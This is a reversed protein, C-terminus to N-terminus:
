ANIKQLYASFQAACTDGYTAPKGDLRERLHALAAATTSQFEEPNNVFDDMWRNFAAAWQEEM